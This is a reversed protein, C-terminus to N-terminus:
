TAYHVSYKGETVVQWPTFVVRGTAMPQWDVVVTGCDCPRSEKPKIRDSCRTCTVVNLRRTYTM